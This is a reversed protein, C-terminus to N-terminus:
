AVPKLLSRLEVRDGWRDRAFRQASRDAFWVAAVVVGRRPDTYSYPVTGLAVRVDDERLDDQVGALVKEINRHDPYPRRTPGELVQETEAVRPVETLVFAEGDLTGTVHWTGWTTGNLSEVGKVAAWGWNRVPLGSCQPPLSERISGCLEPGHRPSELVTFTGHLRASAGATWKDAGASSALVALAVVGIVPRLVFVVVTHSIM